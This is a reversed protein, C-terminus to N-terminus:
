DGVSVIGGNPLFVAGTHGDSFGSAGTLGSQWTNSGGGGGSRQSQAAMAALNWLPPGGEFGALGQSNIFYRGQMIPGTIQQLAMLDYVHIERGNVFVQTGGGSADPRLPGGLNFGAAIFGLTPGGRIGWAGSVRDYWYDADDIRIGYAQELQSLQDGALRQGNIVVNRSGPIAPAPRDDQPMPDAPTATAGAMSRDAAGDSRHFTLRQAEDPSGIDMVVRDAQFVATFPIATGASGVTGTIAAGKRHANIPMSAGLEMLSGTINGDSSETLSLVLSPEEAAIYSGDVPEARACGAVTWTALLLYGWARARIM